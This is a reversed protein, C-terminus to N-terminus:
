AKEVDVGVGGLPSEYRRACRNEAFRPYSRRPPLDGNAQAIEGLEGIRMQCMIAIHETLLEDIGYLDLERTPDIRPKVM